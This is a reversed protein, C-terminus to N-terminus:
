CAEQSSMEHDGSSDYLHSIELLSSGTDMVVIDEAFSSPWTGGQAANKTSDEAKGLLGSADEGGDDGGGGCGVLSLAAISGGALGTGVFLQRRTGKRQRILSSWETRTM